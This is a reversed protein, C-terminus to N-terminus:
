FRLKENLKGIAEFEEYTLGESHEALYTRVDSASKLSERGIIVYRAYLPSNRWAGIAARRNAFEDRSIKEIREILKKAFAAAGGSRRMDAVDFLAFEDVPRVLKPPHAIDAMIPKVGARPGARRTDSIQEAATAALEASPPQPVKPKGAIRASAGMKQMDIPTITITPLSASLTLPKPAPFKLTTDSFGSLADKYSEAKDKVLMPKVAKSESLAKFIKGITDFDLGLGGKEYPASLRDRTELEDRIDKLHTVLISEFRKELATDKNLSSQVPSPLAAFANELQADFNHPVYEVPSKASIIPIESLEAEDFLDLVDPNTPQKPIAPSM